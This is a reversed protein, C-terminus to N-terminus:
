TSCSEACWCHPTYLKHAACLIMGVCWGWCHHHKAAARSRGDRGRWSVRARGVPSSKKSNSNDMQVCYVMHLLFFSWMEKYPGCVTCHYGECHHAWVCVTDRARVVQSLCAFSVISAGKKLEMASLVRCCTCCFGWEWSVRDWLAATLPLNIHWGRGSPSTIITLEKEIAISRSQGRARDYSNHMPKTRTYANHLM